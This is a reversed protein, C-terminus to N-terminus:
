GAQHIWIYEGDNFTIVGCGGEEVCIKISKNKLFVKKDGLIDGDKKFTREWSEGAPIVEWTDVWMFNDGGAYFEKGAGLIVCKSSTSHVICIGKKKSKKDEVFLTIDKEGDGNLDEMIYSPELKNSIALNATEAAKEAVPLLQSALLAGPVICGLIILLKPNMASVVLM